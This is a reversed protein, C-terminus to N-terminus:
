WLWRFSLLFILLRYYFISCSRTWVPWHDDFHYQYACSQSTDIAMKTWTYYSRELAKILWYAVTDVSIRASLVICSSFLGCCLLIPYWVVFSTDYIALSMSYWWKQWYTEFLRSYCLWCSLIGHHCWIGTVYKCYNCSRSTVTGALWGRICIFCHLGM